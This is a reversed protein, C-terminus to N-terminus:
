LKTRIDYLVMKLSNLAEALTINGKYYDDVIKALREDKSAIEKTLRKREFLLLVILLALVAVVEPGGHLIQTILIGIINDM